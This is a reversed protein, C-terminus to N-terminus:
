NYWPLAKQLPLIAKAGTTKLKDLTTSDPLLEGKKNVYSISVDSEDHPLIFLLDGDTGGHWSAGVQGDDAIGILPFDRLELCQLVNVLLKSTSLFREKENREHEEEDFIANLDTLRAAIKKWIETETRSANLTDFMNPIIEMTADDSQWVVFCIPASEGGSLVFSLQPENNTLYGSTNVFASLTEGM